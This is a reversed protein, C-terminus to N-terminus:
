LSCTVFELFCFIRCFALLCFGFQFYFSLFLVSSFLSFLHKDELSELYMQQFFRKHVSYTVTTNDLCQQHYEFNVHM